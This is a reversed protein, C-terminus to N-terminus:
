WDYRLVVGPSVPRLWQNRLYELNIGIGLKFNDFCLGTRLRNIVYLKTAESYQAFLEHMVFLNRTGFAPLYTKFNSFVNYEPTTEPKVGALVFLASKSGSLVGHVGLTYRGEWADTIDFLVSPGFKNLFTYNFQALQYFGYANDRRTIICRSFFSLNERANLENVKREFADEAPKVLRITSFFQMDYQQVGRGYLVEVMQGRACYSSCVLLLWVYSVRFPSSM